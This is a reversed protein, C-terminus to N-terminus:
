YLQSKLEGCGILVRLSGMCSRFNSHSPILHAEDLVVQKLKGQSSMEYLYDTFEKTQAHEPSVYVIKTTPRNNDRTWRSSEIKQEGCRREFDVHLASLPLLVCTIGHDRVFAPLMYALTKGMATPGVLLLHREYALCFEIAEAQEPTKFVAKSNGLFNRLMKLLSPHPVYLEREVRSSIARNSDGRGHVALACGLSDNITSRINLNVNKLEEALRSVQSELASVSTSTMRDAHDTTKTQNATPPSELPEIGLCTREDSFTGGSLLFDFYGHPTAVM